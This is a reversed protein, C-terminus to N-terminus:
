NGGTMKVRGDADFYVCFCAMGFSDLWYVWSEEGSPSYSEHPSGLLARVEASTMGERVEGRPYRDLPYNGNVIRVYYRPGICCFLPLAVCALILLVGGARAATSDRRLLKFATLAGAVAGVLLLLWVALLVFLIAGSAGFDPTAFPM